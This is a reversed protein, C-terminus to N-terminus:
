ENIELEYMVWNNDQTSLTFNMVASAKPRTVPKASPTPIEVYTGTQLEASGSAKGGNGLAIQSVSTLKDLYDGSLGGNSGNSFKVFDSIAKCGICGKDSEAMFNQADGTAYAYNQLSVYYAVFKEAAALTVGTAEVPRTPPASPISNSTPTSTAPANTPASSSAPPPATNPHGAEPSPSTCATLATTITLCTLLAAAPRNRNTM